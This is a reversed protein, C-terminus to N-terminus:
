TKWPSREVWWTHLEDSGSVEYAAAMSELFRDRRRERLARAGELWAPRDVPLPLASVSATTPKLAMINRGTGFGAALSCVTGVPSCIVAALEWLRESPALLAITPTSPVWNGTLDVAAEGVKTQTPIVLKPVATTTVWSAARGGASELSRRNVVPHLFTQKAFRTPREGWACTGVDILGSTVLRSLEDPWDIDDVPGTLSVPAEAVHSVLGYYEDRFGALARAIDGVTGCTRVTPQPVSMARLALGSWDRSSHATEPETRGAAMFDRGRWLEVPGPSTSEAGHDQRTSRAMVACVDVSAEFVREGAVWLGTVAAVRAFAERAARADRAALVSAPVILGLRGGANLAEAGAVMFLAATDTYPGVVEGWRSRLRTTIEESRVNSGSLQSQFPPNGVVLDYAANPVPELLTDGVQIRRGAVTALVSTTSASGAREAWWALAARTTWVAGPDLDTGWVLDAVIEDPTAGMARLRDAAALLFVGGGCAPDWVKPRPRPPPDDVPWVAAVLAEAVQPPTYHAGATRVAPSLTAEYIRGLDRPELVASSAGGERIWREGDPHDGSVEGIRTNESLHSLVPSDVHRAVLAVLHRAADVSTSM